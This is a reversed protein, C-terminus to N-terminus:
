WSAPDLQYYDQLLAYLNSQWRQLRHPQEFFAETAVAFFEAPNTAGYSDLGTRAGSELERRLQSYAAGMVAAWRQYTARDPLTPVGEARGDVQDLQHAFEHLVVNHGDQGHALDYVVQQWSLVVQDRSWSEGLRAVQREEVYPGVQQTERARYASPYVLITRLQPFNDGREHLLLLSATAAILLRMDDTVQLGGCGIFQKTRLFVQIHGQLRRRQEDSLRAYAPLQGLLAHWPDPVPQRRLRQRQWAAIRPLLLLTAIAVAMLMLVALTPAM